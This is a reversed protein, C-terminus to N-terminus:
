VRPALQIHTAVNKGDRVEYAVKVWAGERIETLSGLRGAIQVETDESLRLTKGFLGFFGTSVQVTGTAPDVSKVTGELLAPAQPSQASTLGVALALMLVMVATASTFRGM